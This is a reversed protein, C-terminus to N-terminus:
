EKGTLLFLGLVGLLAYKLKPFDNQGTLKGELVNLLRVMAITVYGVYPLFRLIILLPGFAEHVPPFSV